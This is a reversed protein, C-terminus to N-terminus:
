RLKPGFLILGLIILLILSVIAIFLAIIYRLLDSLWLVTLLQLLVIFFRLLVVKIPVGCLLCQLEKALLKCLKFLHLQRHVLANEGNTSNAAMILVTYSIFISLVNSLNPLLNGKTVLHYSDYILASETLYDLAYIVFVGILSHYSCFKGFVFFKVDVICVNLDFNEVLQSLTILVIVFAFIAKDFVNVAELKSLM